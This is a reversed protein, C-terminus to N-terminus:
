SSKAPFHSFMTSILATPNSSVHHGSKRCQGLSIAFQESTHLRSDVRIDLKLFHCVAAMVSLTVSPHVDVQILELDPLAKWRGFEISDYDRGHKLTM